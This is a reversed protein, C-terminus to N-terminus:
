GTIARPDSATMALTKKQCGGVTHAGSLAVIDKDDLEADLRSLVLVADSRTGPQIRQLLKSKVKAISAQPPVTIALLHRAFRHHGAGILPLVLAYGASAIALIMGKVPAGLVYAGAGLALNIPPGVTAIYNAAMLRRVLDPAMDPRVGRTLLRMTWDPLQM